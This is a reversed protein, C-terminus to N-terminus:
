EGRPGTFGPGGEHGGDGKTGKMVEKMHKMETVSMKGPPGMVGREGSLYLNNVIFFHSRWSNNVNCAFYNFFHM